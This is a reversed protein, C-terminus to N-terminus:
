TSKDKGVGEIVRWITLEWFDANGAEVDRTISWSGIDLQRQSLGLEGLIHGELLKIM